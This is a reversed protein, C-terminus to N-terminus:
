LRWLAHAIARSSECSSCMIKMGFAAGTDPGPLLVRLHLLDEPETESSVSQVTEGYPGVPGTTAVPTIWGALRAPMCEQISVLPAILAGQQSSTHSFKEITVVVPKTVQPLDVDVPHCQEYGVLPAIM